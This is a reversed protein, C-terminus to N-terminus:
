RHVRFIHFRDRNQFIGSRGGQPTRTTGVTHNHYGGFAALLAFCVPLGMFMGILLSGFIILGTM